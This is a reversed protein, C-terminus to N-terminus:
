AAAIAANKKTGRYAFFGLGVFGSLLMLWTSPLPTLTTDYGISELMAYEPSATSFAAAGGCVFASQIQCPSSLFDGYDSGGGVQNFGVINTVGGNVSFYATASSSNTFSPTGAASYRYLDLGGYSGTVGSAILQSGQGGGGLIENIEHEIESISYSAPTITVVGDYLQSGGGVFVGSSNFYGTYAGSIAAGLARLNVTDSAIPRAGNADNGQNLNAVATSL